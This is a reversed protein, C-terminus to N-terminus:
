LQEEHGPSDGDATQMQNERKINKRKKESLLTKRHSRVNTVSQM